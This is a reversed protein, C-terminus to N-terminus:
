PGLEPPDRLVSYEKLSAGATKLYATWFDRLSAWYATPKGANDAGLVYV